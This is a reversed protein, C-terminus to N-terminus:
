RVKVIFISWSLHGDEHDAHIDDRESLMEWPQTLQVEYLTSVNTSAIQWPAQVYRSIQQQTHWFHLNEVM